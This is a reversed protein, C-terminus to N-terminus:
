QIQEYNALWQKLREVSNNPRRVQMTKQQRLWYCDHQKTTQGADDEAAATLLLWTTQDDSRCRRRSGCDIVTENNPRRQMTKAAATLLLWTTRDDSRCRRRSGCDIVTENYVNDSKFLWPTNQSLACTWLLHFFMRTTDLNGPKVQFYLNSHHTQYRRYDISVM